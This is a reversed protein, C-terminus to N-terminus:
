DADFDDPMDELTYREETGDSYTVVLFEKERRMSLAKVPEAERVIM